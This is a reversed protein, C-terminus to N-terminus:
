HNEGVFISLKDIPFVNGASLSVPVAFRCKVEYMTGALPGSFTGVPLDYTEGSTNVLHLSYTFESSGAAFYAKSGETTLTHSVGGASITLESATFWQSFAEPLSFTVGFNVMPVKVNLYTVYDNEISFPTSSEFAAGGLGGNESPWTTLNETHCHLTYQGVPLIFKAPISSGAAYSMGGYVSGDPSLIEVALSPDIARTSIVQAAPTQFDISELALSGEGLPSDKTCSGIALFCALFIIFYPIKMM